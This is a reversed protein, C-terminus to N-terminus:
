RLRSPSVSAGGSIGGEVALRQPGSLQTFRPMQGGARVIAAAREANARTMATAGARGAAGAGMVGFAGIPGGIAYGAGGGLTSSVIGTPALRGLYRLSNEIPGGSAVRKIAAQETKNFMRMKKASRSLTRFEARLANESGSGTFNSGRVGARKILNEIVEGKRFRSWYDRAQTIARSAERANGSVVDQPRLNTLYDDIRNMMIGAIRREDASTSGRAAGVVRRLTDLEQLSIPTTRAEGLRALAATANPHITRDIGAQRAANGIEDVVRAFSRPAIRLGAQEAQRYLQNAQDRLADASPVARETARQASRAGYAGVTGGITGGIAAGKGARWLRDEMGEGAGFGHAAGYVAGEAAGRGAMSATTPRAGSLLTAGGRALQGGTLVAGGINGAMSAVPFNQEAERDMARQDDLVAGYANRVRDLIGAGEDDGRFARVGMEIPTMAGAMLEDAFQFTAGQAIGRQLADGRGREAMAGQGFRRRQPEQSPASGQQAARQRARGIAIARRQEQTLEM